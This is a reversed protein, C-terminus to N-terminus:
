VCQAYKRGPGPRVSIDTDDYHDTQKEAHTMGMLARMSEYQNLSHWEDFANNEPHKEPM